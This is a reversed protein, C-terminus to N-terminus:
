KKKEEFLAEEMFQRMEPPLNKDQLREHIARTAENDLLRMQKALEKEVDEESIDLEGREIYAKREKARKFVAWLGRRSALMQDIHTWVSVVQWLGMWGEALANAVARRFQDTPMQEEANM